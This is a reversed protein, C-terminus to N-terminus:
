RMFATNWPLEGARDGCRGGGRRYLRRRPGHFHVGPYHRDIDRSAHVSDASAIRSLFPRCHRDCIRSEHLHESLRVMLSFTRTIESLVNLPLLLLNPKDHIPATRGDAAPGYKRFLAGVLFRNGRTRGANRHAWDAAQGARNGFPKAFVLFIFLTGLLPLYSWPDRRIIEHIQKELTEVLIELVTQLTGRTSRGGSAAGALLYCDSRGHYGLDDCGPPQHSVPGLQFLIDPVLPSTEMTVESGMWRQIVLRAISFVSCPSCSSSHEKSHSSGFRRSRPPSVTIHLPIVRPQLRRRLTCASQGSLSPSIVAGLATGAALYLAVDVPDPWSM